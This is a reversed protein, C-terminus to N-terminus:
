DLDFYEKPLHLNTVIAGAVIGGLVMPKNFRGMFKYLVATITIIVFVTFLMKDVDDFINIPM